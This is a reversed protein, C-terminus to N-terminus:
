ASANLGEPGITQSSISLYLALSKRQHSVKLKSICKDNMNAEGFQMRKGELNCENGRVCSFSYMAMKNQYMEPMPTSTIEQDLKEWVKSMDCVSRSCVPCAFKFHMEMEKLCDLHITHGCQLVSIDKMLDFLYEFCVPCNHHMAREVCRHSNKLSSAYCCRVVDIVTSFIRKAVREAFEVDLATINIRQCMMMSFIAFEVFTNGWAFEVTLAIRTSMKNQTVCPVFLRIFKMALFTMDILHIFKWPIRPKMIAICPSYAPSSLNKTYSYLSFPLRSMHNLFRASATSARSQGTRKLIHRPDARPAQKEGSSAQLEELPAAKQIDLDMESSGLGWIVLAQEKHATGLGLGLFDGHAEETRSELAQARSVMQKNGSVVNQGEMNADGVAVLEPIKLSSGDTRVETLGSRDEEAKRTMSEVGVAVNAVRPPTSFLGAGQLHRRGPSGRNRAPIQDLRPKQPTGSITVTAPSSSAAGNYFVNARLLFSFNNKIDRPSGGLKRLEVSHKERISCFHLDHGICGCFYCFIDLKEYKFTVPLVEGMETCLEKGKLLREKIDMRVRVRAVHKKFESSCCIDVGKVKGLNMGIIKTNEENIRDRPLGYIQVWFDVRDFKWDAELLESYKGKKISLIFGQIVWPGNQKVHNYEDVNDFVMKYFGKTIMEISTEGKTQWCRHVEEAFDQLAIHKGGYLKGVLTTHEKPDVVLNKCDIKVLKKEKSCFLNQM